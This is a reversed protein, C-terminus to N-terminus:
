LKTEAVHQGRARRAGIGILSVLLAAFVYLGFGLGTIVLLTRSLWLLPSDGSLVVIWGTSSLSLGFATAQYM